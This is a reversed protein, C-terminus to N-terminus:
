YGPLSDFRAYNCRLFAIVETRLVLADVREAVPYIASLQNTRPLRTIRTIGKCNKPHETISGIIDGTHTKNLRNRSRWLIM